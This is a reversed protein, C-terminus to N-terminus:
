WDRRRYAEVGRVDNVRSDGFIAGILGEIAAGLLGVLAGILGGIAAGLLGVLPAVAASLGGAGISQFVACLSGV